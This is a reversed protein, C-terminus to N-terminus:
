ILLMFVGKSTKRLRGRKSFGYIPPLIQQPKVGPWYKKGIEAVIEQGTLGAKGHRMAEGIVAKTMDYLSPTGDPRPPGLKPSRKQGDSPKDSPSYREIVRLATEIDKDEGQLRAIEAAIKRRRDLMGQLDAKMPYPAYVWLAGSVLVM